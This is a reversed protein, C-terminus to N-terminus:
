QFGRLLDNTTSIQNRLNPFRTMLQNYEEFSMCFYGTDRYQPDITIPIDCQEFGGAKFAFERFRWGQPFNVIQYNQYQSHATLDELNPHEALNEQALFANLNKYVTFASFYDSLHIEQLQPQTNQFAVQQEETLIVNQESETLPFEKLLIGNLPLIISEITPLRCETLSSIDDDFTLYGNPTYGWSLGTNDLPVTVEDGNKVAKEFFLGCWGDTYVSLWKNLPTNWLSTCSSALPDISQPIFTLYLGFFHEKEPFKGWSGSAFVKANTRYFYGFPNEEPPVCDYGWTLCATISRKEEFLIVLYINEGSWAWRAGIICPHYIELFTEGNLLAKIGAKRTSNGSFGSIGLPIIQRNQVAQLQENTPPATPETTIWAENQM